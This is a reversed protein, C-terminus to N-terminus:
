KRGKKRRLLFWLGATVIVLVIGLITWNVGSGESIYGGNAASM